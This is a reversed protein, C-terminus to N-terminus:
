KALVTCLLYPSLMSLEAAPNELPYIPLAVVTDEDKVSPSLIDTSDLLM